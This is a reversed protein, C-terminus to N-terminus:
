VKQERLYRSGWNSSVNMAGTGIAQVERYANFDDEKLKDLDNYKSEVTVTRLDKKKARPLDKLMSIEFQMDAVTQSLKAIDEIPLDPSKRIFDVYARQEEKKHKLLTEVSVETKFHSIM